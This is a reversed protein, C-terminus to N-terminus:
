LKLLYTKCAVGRGGFSWKWYELSDNLVRGQLENSTGM